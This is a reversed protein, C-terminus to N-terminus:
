TSTVEDKLEKGKSPKFLNDIASRNDTPDDPAKRVAIRM